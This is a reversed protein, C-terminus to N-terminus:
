QLMYIRLENKKKIHISYFVYMNDRKNGIQKKVTVLMAFILWILL